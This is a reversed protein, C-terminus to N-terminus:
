DKRVLNEPLWRDLHYKVYFAISKRQRNDADLSKIFNYMFDIKDFLFMANICGENM